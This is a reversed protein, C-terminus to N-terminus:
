ALEDPGPVHPPPPPGDYGECKCGFRWCAGVSSHTTYLHSCSCAPSGARFTDWADLMPRVSALYEKIEEVTHM